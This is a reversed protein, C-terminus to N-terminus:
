YKNFVIKLNEVIWGAKINIINPYYVFPESYGFPYPNGYNYVSNNNLDIFAFLSYSGDLIDKFNFVTDRVSFNYKLVPILSKEELTINVDYLSLDIDSYQNAIIGKLEGFSNKSVTRFPLSFNYVSDSDIKLKFQILYKRNFEFNGAPFIELLSDNKWNFVSTYKINNEDKLTFDKTFDIRNPIFRKFFIFISQAPLVTSSNYNVSTYVIDATDRFFKKVDIDTESAASFYYPNFNINEIKASDNLEIDFPLVGYIERGSTYFLNRDDDVVTIIRYKGKAMFPLVYTGETNTETIYDPYNEAPNYLRELNYAFVSFIKSQNNYVKGSISGMDINNGTSFAFTVPETIANGRIDKFLSNITIIFTKSPYIKNLKSDFRVEVDKSGWIFEFDSQIKPSIRFADQFSRRDVYENFEFFLSNGNFNVTNPKPSIIKVLPPTKDIEGGGPPQQNACSIFLIILFLSILVNFNLLIKSVV